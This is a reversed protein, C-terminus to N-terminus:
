LRALARGNTGGIPFQIEIRVMMARCVFFRVDDRAFARLDDVFSDTVVLLRGARETDV